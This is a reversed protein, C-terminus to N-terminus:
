KLIEARILSNNRRGLSYQDVLQSKLRQEGVQSNVEVVVIELVVPQGETILSGQSSPLKALFSLEMRQM